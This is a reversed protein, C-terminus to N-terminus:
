LKRLYRMCDGVGLLISSFIRLQRIDGIYEVPKKLATFIWSNLTRVLLHKDLLRYAKIGCTKSQLPYYRWGVLPVIVNRSCVRTM